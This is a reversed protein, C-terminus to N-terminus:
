PRRRRMTMGGMMGGGYGGDGTGTGMFWDNVLVVVVLNGDTAPMMPWGDTFSVSWRETGDPALDILSRSLTPPSGQNGATGTLNMNSVLLSGDDAVIMMGSRGLMAGGSGISGGGHALALGSTGLAILSFAAIVIKRKV